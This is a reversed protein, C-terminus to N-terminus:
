DRRLRRDILVWGTISAALGLILAPWALTPAYRSVGLAVVSYFATISWVRIAVMGDREGRALAWRQYIHERHADLLPSGRRARVVLTVFVDTLLPTLAIPAALLSVPASRGGQGAMVVSLMALLAGLFLAGADGMFLRARPFNTPLFGLTAAGLTILAWGTVPAFGAHRAALGLALAVIAVSGAVLGNSGDMFNVANVVVVIWLATGAIALIPPLVLTGNILPLGAPHAVLASFGIAVALQAALKVKADIDFIDDIVGFLGLLAALGLAAGSASTFPDPPCLARLLLFGGAAGCLIGLGGSTPTPQLHLGRDRPSDIPGCWVLLNSVVFSVFGALVLSAGAALAPNM